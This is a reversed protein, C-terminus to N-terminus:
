HRKDVRLQKWIKRDEEAFDSVGDRDGGGSEEGFPSPLKLPRPLM